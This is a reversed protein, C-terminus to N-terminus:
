CNAGTRRCHGLAIRLVFCLFFLFVVVLVAGLLSFSCRCVSVRVVYVVLRSVCCLRVSYYLFVDQFRVLHPVNLLFFLCFYPVM